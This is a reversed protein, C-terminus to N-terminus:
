QNNCQGPGARSTPFCRAISVVPFADNEDDKLFFSSRSAVLLPVARISRATNSNSSGITAENCHTGGCRPAASGNDSWCGHWCRSDPSKHQSSCSGTRWSGRLLVRKRAILKLERMSISTTTYETADL